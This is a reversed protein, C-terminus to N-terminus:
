RDLLQEGGINQVIGFCRFEKALSVEPLCCGDVAFVGLTAETVPLSSEAWAPGNEHWRNQVVPENM